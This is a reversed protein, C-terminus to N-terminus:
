SIYTFYPVMVFPRFLQGKKQHPAEMLAQAMLAILQQEREPEMVPNPRDNHDLELTVQDLNHEPPTFISL